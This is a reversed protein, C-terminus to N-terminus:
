RSKKKAMVDQFTQFDLPTEKKGKEKKIVFTVSIKDKKSIKKVFQFTQFALPTDKM